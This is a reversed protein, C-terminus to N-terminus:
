YYFHANQQLLLQIYGLMQNIIYSKHAASITNIKGGNFWKISFLNSTARMKCLLAVHLVDITPLFLLSIKLCSEQKNGTFTKHQWLSIKIMEVFLATLKVYLTFNREFDTKGEVKFDSNQPNHENQLIGATIFM